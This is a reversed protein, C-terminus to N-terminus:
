DHPGGETRANPTSVTGQPNFGVSGCPLTITFTTGQGEQSSAEIRGGHRDVIARSIALGLGVGKGEEKTTMFPEFLRPLIDAAIGVGDDAIRITVTDDGASTVIKLNGERPMAEIANMIIALLLQEIQGADGRMRPLDEALELHPVINGLELKHVVLKITRRVIHNVDFDTINLPQVRAFTLLNRVIEGCRRSENEILQLSDRMDTAHSQLDDGREVWKRLLKAYTLIGSLPNNIEHAVVAALKGLSSLKEVQIMQEHARRLEATKRHVRDELALALATSEERAAELQRSMENFSAALGGLEDSSRIPIQVGVQGSGLQITGRRLRRVPEHIFYWVLLGISVLTLVITLASYGVFQMTAKRVDADATALSLDLNLVGLLVQSEPHAHCAGSACTPSNLIPTTVGLVRHGGASHFSTSQSPLNAGPIDVISGIEEPRTSFAVRREHNMIRLRDIGRDQGITEVIHRLAERDNRLMYYSTSRRVVDSMREAAALRTAELHQRHLRINAYGLLGLALLLVVFVVLFLKAALSRSFRSTRRLAAFSGRRIPPSGESTPSLTVPVTV